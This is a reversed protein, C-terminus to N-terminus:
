IEPQQVKQPTLQQTVQLYITSNPGIPLVKKTKPNLIRVKLSGIILPEGHHEYVFSDPFPATAFSNATIYYSSIISKVQYADTEDFYNTTYGTIEILFHGTDNPNLPSSIANIMNTTDSEWVYTGNYKGDIYSRYIWDRFSTPISFSYGSKGFTAMDSPPTLMSIGWFNGTTLSQYQEWSLQPMSGNQGFAGFEVNLTNTDFSLVDKWFSEPELKFIIIGAQRDSMALDYSEGTDDVRASVMVVEKGGALIPTHLYDFSYIGNNQNNYILSIESAGVMPAFLRNNDFDGSVGSGVIFFPFILYPYGQIPYPGSTTPTMMSNYRGNYNTVSQFVAPILSTNNGPIEQSNQGSPPNFNGNYFDIYYLYNKGTGQWKLLPQIVFPTSAKLIGEYSIPISGFGNPFEFGSKILDPNVRAMNQTIFTALFDKSYSGAKLTFSWTGIYPTWRKPIANGSGDTSPYSHTTIDYPYYYIMLMYPLGDASTLNRFEPYNTDEQYLFQNLGESQGNLGNPGLNIRAMVYQGTNNGIMNNVYYYYHSIYLTTDEEIYIDDSSRTRTDIYADKIVIGDGNNIVMTEALISDCEGNSIKGQSNYASVSIVTEM